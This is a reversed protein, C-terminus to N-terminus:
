PMDDRYAYSANVGWQPKYQQKALDIAKESVKRKTDIALIAPHKEFARALQNRSYSSAKLLEPKDLKITPLDEAVKFGTAHADFDFGREIDSGDYVHLWENLRAITGELTQKQATLRDELQVIELQARIVDQQRTKGVANSYSAKAVEAMQEFLARDSEILMITQQALYADLWLQSVMAELKAKRNARQLPFKSAEIQLQKEKIALSDGRALMQSVGVKFQTMGEQGFDWSDTPLNMMSISVKPDPLTSAAVSRHLLAKQKLESGHLWPDNQQALHIAQELTVVEKAETSFVLGGMILAFVLKKTTMVNRINVQTKM